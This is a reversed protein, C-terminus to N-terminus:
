PKGGFLDPTQTDRPAPWRLERAKWSQAQLDVADGIAALALRQRSPRDFVSLPWWATHTGNRLHVADLTMALITGQVPSHSHLEPTM